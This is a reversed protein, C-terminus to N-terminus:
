GREGAAAVKSSPGASPRTLFPAPEFDPSPAVLSHGTVDPPANDVVASNGGTPSTSGGPGGGGPGGGGPDGPVGANPGGPTRSTVAGSAAIAPSSMTTSLLLTMAPPVIAAFPGATLLFRRRDSQAVLDPALKNDSM